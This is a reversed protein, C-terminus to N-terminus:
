FMVVMELSKNKLIKKLRHKKKKKKKKEKNKKNTKKKISDDFSIIIKYENNRNEHISQLGPM